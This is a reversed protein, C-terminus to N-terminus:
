AKKKKKKLGGKLNTATIGYEKCIKKIAKIQDKKVLKKIEDMEKQISAYKAQIESYEKKRAAAAEQELRKAEEKKRKDEARRRQDAEKEAQTKQIRKKKELDITVKKDSGEESFSLKNGDKSFTGEM